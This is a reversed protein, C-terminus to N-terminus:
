RAQGFSIKFTGARENERCWVLVEDTLDAISAASKQVRRLFETVEVSLGSLNALSNQLEQLDADFQALRSEKQPLQSSASQLRHRLPDITNGQVTVEPLKEVLNLLDFHPQTQALVYSAWSRGLFGQLDQVLKEVTGLKQVQRYETLFKERSEKLRNQINQLQKMVEAIQDNTLRSQILHFSTATEKLLKSIETLKQYSDAIDKRNDRRQELEKRRTIQTQVNDTLTIIM